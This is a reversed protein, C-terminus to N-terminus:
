KQLHSSLMAFYFYHIVNNQWEAGPHRRSNKLAVSQAQFVNAFRSASSKENQKAFPVRVFILELVSTCRFFLAYTRWPACM